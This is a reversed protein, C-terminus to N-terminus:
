AAMGMNPQDASPAPFAPQGGPENEAPRESNNAGQPGQANPDAGMPMPAGAMQNTATISPAGQVYLDEMDIELADAYKKVIPEPNIGPILVLHPM